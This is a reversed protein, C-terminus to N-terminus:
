VVDRNHHDVDPLLKRKYGRFAVVLGAILAIVIAAHFAIDPVTHPGIGILITYIGVCTGLLAFAQAAIGIGRIWAPIIWTLLFGALLIIGIASEAMGAWRHEYGHMLVGFHILCAAIFAIGEFLLFLRIARNM